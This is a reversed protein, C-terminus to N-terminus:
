GKILYPTYIIPTDYKVYNKIFYLVDDRCKILDEIQQQEKLGLIDDYM